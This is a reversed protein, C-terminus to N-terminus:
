ALYRSISTQYNIAIPDLRFVLVWIAFDPKHLKGINTDATEEILRVPEHCGLLGYLQFACVQFFPVNKDGSHWVRKPSGALKGAVPSLAHSDNINANKARIVRNSISSVNRV